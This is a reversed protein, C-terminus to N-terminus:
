NGCNKVFDQNKLQNHFNLDLNVNKLFPMENMDKIKLYLFAM